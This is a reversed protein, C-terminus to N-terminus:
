FTIVKEGQRILDSLSSGVYGPEIGRQTYFEEVHYKDTCLKCVRTSVGSDLVDDLQEAVEADQAALRVSPGWIILHMEQWWGHARGFFLIHTWDHNIGKAKLQYRITHVMQYALVALNLHAVSNEDTKHFIPRM